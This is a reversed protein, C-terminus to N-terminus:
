STNKKLLVFDFATGGSFVIHHLLSAKFEIKDGAVENAVNLAAEAFNTQM